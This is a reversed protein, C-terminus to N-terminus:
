VLRERIARAVAEPASHVQLKGYVKRIHSRVTDVSIHLDYAIEKYGKGAVLARLVDAERESLGYRVLGDQAGQPLPLGARVTALVSRAVSPTMPAGGAVISRIEELVERADSRKVLYGDAGALIARVIRDPEEFATLMVVLAEPLRAKLERTASIGDLGPMEIDMLVLDWSPAPTKEAAALLPRAEGFSAVVQFSSELALLDAIAGRYPADDDVIAVRVPM